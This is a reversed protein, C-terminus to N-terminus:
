LENFLVQPKKDAVYLYLEYFSDTIFNVSGMDTDHNRCKLAERYASIFNTVRYLINGGNEPTKRLHNAISSHTGHLGDIKCLSKRLLM